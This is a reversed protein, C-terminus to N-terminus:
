AENGGPYERVRLGVWGGGRVNVGRGPYGTPTHPVGGLALENFMAEAAPVGGVENRIGGTAGPTNGATGGPNGGPMLIWGPSAGPPAVPANPALAFSATAGGPSSMGAHPGVNAGGQKGRKLPGM